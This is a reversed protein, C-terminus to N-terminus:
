SLSTMAVGVAILSVGTWRLRSVREGLIVSAGVTALVYDLAAIPIVLSLDWFSLLALFAGFHIAALVISWFLSSNRAARRILALLDWSRLDPASGVQKMGQALFVDSAADTVVMLGVLFWGM